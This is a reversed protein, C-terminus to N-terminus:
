GPDTETPKPECPRREPIPLAELVAANACDRFALLIAASPAAAAWPHFTLLTRRTLARYAAHDYDPRHLPPRPTM